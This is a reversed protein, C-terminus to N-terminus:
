AAPLMVRVTTGENSSMVDVRGGRKEIVRRALVL